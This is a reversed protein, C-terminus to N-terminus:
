AAQRFYAEERRAADWCNPMVAALFCFSRGPAGVLRCGTVAERQSMVLRMGVKGLNRPMLVVITSGFWRWASAPHLGACWATDRDSYMRRRTARSRPLSVCALSGDTMKRRNSLAPDLIASPLCAIIPSVM